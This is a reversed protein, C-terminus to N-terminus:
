EHIQEMQEKLEAVARRFLSKTADLSKGLLVAIESFQLGEAFRLLVIERYADPLDAIACRLMLTEDMNPLRSHLHLSTGGPQYAEGEEPLETIEIHMRHAADRRYYDAVQRNVLTRLWTSFQAEYRFSKLSKMVAIFIEQTVDEVDPAPIIYRVRRFVTPLHREYLATFAELKGQQAARVLEHDNITQTAM